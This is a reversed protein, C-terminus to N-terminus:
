RHRSKAQWAGVVSGATRRCCSPRHPADRGGKRRLESIRREIDRLTEPGAGLARLEGLYRELWEAARGSDGLKEYCDAITQNVEYVWVDMDEATQGIRLVERYHPIAERWRRQDRYIDALELHAQRPAKQMETIRLLHPVAENQESAGVPAEARHCLVDVLEWRALVSAPALRVALRAEDYSQAWQGRARLLRVRGVHAEACNADIVLAERFAVDAADQRGRELAILGQYARAPAHRPHRALVLAFVREAEDMADGTDDHANFLAVARAFEAAVARAPPQQGFPLSLELMAVAVLLFM